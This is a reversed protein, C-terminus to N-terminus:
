RQEWNDFRPDHTPDPADAHRVLLHHDLMDRSDALSDMSDIEKGCHPCAVSYATM